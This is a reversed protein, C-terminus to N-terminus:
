PRYIWTRATAEPTFAYGGALLVRGDGLLTESMFHRADGMESSVVTFKGTRGDYLEAHPNGGAVLLQGSRLQVATDPLNFRANHLSTTAIFKGSGPDYVEASSLTGNRDRDNSGGAVLVRGDPLLGATHKYRATAMSGTERPIHQEESRLNGRECKSGIGKRRRDARSRRIAPDCHTCRSRLANTRYASVELYRYPLDRRGCSQQKWRHRRSGGHDFCKRGAPPNGGSSGAESDHPRHLHVQGNRPRIARGRRDPRSWDLRWCDASQGLAATRCYARRAGPADRRDLSVQREGSRVTRSLSLLGPQAANRWCDSSKWRAATHRFARLAAGDDRPRERSLRGDCTPRDCNLGSSGRWDGCRHQTFDSMLLGDFKRRRLGRRPLFEM